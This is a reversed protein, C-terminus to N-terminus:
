FSFILSQRTGNVMLVDWMVLRKRDSIITLPMDMFGGLGIACRKKILASGYVGRKRMELLGKLVCFGIDM